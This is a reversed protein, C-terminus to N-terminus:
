VVSNKIWQVIERVKCVAAKVSPLKLAAEVVLNITHAFYPLHKTEGLATKIAALM